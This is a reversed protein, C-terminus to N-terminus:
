DQFDIAACTANIVEGGVTLQAPTMEGSTSFVGVLDQGEFTGAVELTGRQAGKKLTLGSYTILQPPLTSNRAIKVLTSLDADVSQSAIVANMLDEFSIMVYLNSAPDLLGNGSASPTIACSIASMKPGTPAAIATAAVAMTNLALVSAVILNKM